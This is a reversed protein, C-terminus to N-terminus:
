LQILLAVAHASAGQGTGVFGLGEHTTAKVSVNQPLINLVSGINRRMEDIYPSVQPKELVVTADINVVGFRHQSLLEAVHKLLVMSSIGKFRPDSNPFHKGIDGLGAAGLLADSVAHLLIDADSHGELGMQHPIEVGGLILKRGQVLRHVDYGFGIRVNSQIVDGSKL